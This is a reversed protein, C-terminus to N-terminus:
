VHEKAARKEHIDIRNTGAGVLDARENREIRKVGNADHRNVHFSALHIKKRTAYEFPETASRAGAKKVHTRADAVFQLRGEGAPLRMRAWEREFLGHLEGRAGKAPQIPRRHDGRKVGRGLTRLDEPAGSNACDPLFANSEGRMQYIEGIGPAVGHIRRAVGRPAASRDCDINGVSILDCLVQQGPVYQDVIAYTSTDPNGRVEKCPLVLQVFGNRLDVLSELAPAPLAERFFDRDDGSGNRGSTVVKFLATDLSYLLSISSEESPAYDHWCRKQTRFLVVLSRM